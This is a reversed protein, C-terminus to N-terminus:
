RGFPVLGVVKHTINYQVAPKTLQRNIRGENITHNLVYSALGGLGVGEFFECTSSRQYVKQLRGEMLHRRYNALMEESSVSSIKGDILFIYKAIVKALDSAREGFNALVKPLGTREGRALERSRTFWEADLEELTLIDM